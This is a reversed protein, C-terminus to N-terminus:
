FVSVDMYIAVVHPSISNRKTCYMELGVVCNWKTCYMELGVVSNRKTCYMELGVLSNRKTCYMELSMVTLRDCSASVWVFHLRTVPLWSLLSLYSKGCVCAECSRASM